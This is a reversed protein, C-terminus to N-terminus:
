SLIYVNNGICIVHYDVKNIYIIENVYMDHM